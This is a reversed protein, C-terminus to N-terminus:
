DEFIVRQKSAYWGEVKNAYTEEIVNRKIKMTPTLLGAEISWPKSAVVLFQMEEFHEIKHNASHYSLPSLTM